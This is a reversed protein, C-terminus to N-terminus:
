HSQKQIPVFAGPAGVGGDAPSGDGKATPPEILDGAMLDLVENVPYVRGLAPFRRQRLRSEITELRDTTLVPLRAWIIEGVAGEPDIVLVVGVTGPPFQVARRLTQAATGTDRSYAADVVTEPTEAAPPAVDVPAPVSIETAMRLVDTQGPESPARTTAPTSPTAERVLTVDIVAPRGPLPKPVGQPALYLVGAHLLLSLALGARLGVGSSRDICRM